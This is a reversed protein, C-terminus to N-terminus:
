GRAALVLLVVALALLGACACAAVAAIARKPPILPAEPEPAKPATREGPPPGTPTGPSSGGRGRAQGEELLRSLPDRGGATHQRRLDALTVGQADKLPKPRSGM